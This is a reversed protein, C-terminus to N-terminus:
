TVNAGIICNSPPLLLCCTSSFCHDKCVQWGTHMNLEFYVKDSKVVWFGPSAETWTCSQLCAVASSSNSWDSCKDLNANLYNRHTKNRELGARNTHTGSNVHQSSNVRGMLMKGQLSKYRSANWPQPTTILRPSLQLFLKAKKLLWILVFLCFICNSQSAPRSCALRLCSCSPFCEVVIQCLVAFVLLIFLSHTHLLPWYTPCMLWHVSLLTPLTLCPCSLVHFCLLFLWVSVCFLFVLVHGAFLWLGHAQWLSLQIDKGMNPIDQLMM